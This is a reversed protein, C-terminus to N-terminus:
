ELPDHLVITDDRGPGISLLSVPCGILEEIHRVYARANAPLEDFSRCKTLPETWGPMKEYVPECERFTDPNSPPQDVPRGRYNYSTCIRITEIGTLVDLKTLAVSTAGNILIGRRAIVADFWGCRRPRGTTRGYEYGHELLHQGIRAGLETPFPGQGVRTTYAKVVGIVGDIRSPGVGLGTCVSGATTNSATVFPYTGHDIDLMAGQAGEFLVTKGEDLLSNIELVTDCIYPELRTGYGIYEQCVKDFGISDTHRFIETLLRNKYPLFEVLKERFVSEDLLDGARIGYRSVKDAYVPGIGRGTTGIRWQRRTDEDAGDLIRHYPMIIHACDSIWLRGDATIGRAGLEEIEHLLIRPDVVTGNGIICSVEAHVIGSPVLHLVYESGNAVVTHGANNGGQFRAVCDVREALYDVVKGKAEDGWQTGVVAYGAV